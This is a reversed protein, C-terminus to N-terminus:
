SLTGLNLCLGVLTRTHFFTLFHMKVNGLPNESQSNFDRPHKSHKPYFHLYCVKELNIM